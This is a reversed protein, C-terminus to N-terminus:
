GDRVPTPLLEIVGDANIEFSDSIQVKAREQYYYTTTKIEDEFWYLYNHECAKGSKVYTRGGKDSFSVRQSLPEDLTYECFDWNNGYPVSDLMQYSNNYNNHYHFYRYKKSEKVDVIRILDSETPKTISTKTEGWEGYVLENGLSGGQTDLKDIVEKAEWIAYLQNEKADIKVNTGPAYMTGSADAKTNWGVFSYGAKTPEPLVQITGNKDAKVSDVIRIKDRTRYTTVDVDEEKEFWYTYGYPCADCVKVYRYGGTDSFDMHSAIKSKQLPKECYGWSSVPISDLMKDSGNYSNHYHWYKYRKEKSVSIVELTDSATVSDETTKEGSWESYYYEQPFAGGNLKLSVDHERVENPNEFWIVGQIVYGNSNNGGFYPQSLRQRLYDYGNSHVGGASIGDYDFNDLWWILVLSQKCSFKEIKM